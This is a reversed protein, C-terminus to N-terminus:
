LFFLCKGRAVGSFTNPRGVLAYMGDREAMIFCRNSVVQSYLSTDTQENVEEFRSSAPSKYFVSTTWHKEAIQASQDVSIIVPKPYTKNEGYSTRILVIPSLMTCDGSLELINEGNARYLGVSTDGLCTDDAVLVHM